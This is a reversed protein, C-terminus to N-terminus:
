ATGGGASCPFVCTKSMWMLTTNPNVIINGDTLIQIECTQGNRNSMSDDYRRVPRAGAPLKGINKWGSTTSNANNYMTVWCLGGKTRYLLNTLRFKTYTEHDGEPVALWGSDHSLLTAVKNLLSKLDLKM